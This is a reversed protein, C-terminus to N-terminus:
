MAWAKVAITLISLDEAVHIKTKLMLKQISALFM